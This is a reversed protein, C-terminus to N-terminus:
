ELAEDSDKAARGLQMFLPVLNTADEGYRKELIDLKGKLTKRAKRHDGTDNLLIAYNIALNATNVHNRGFVKSGYRYADNAAELAQDEQNASIHEQYATYASNFKERNDALVTTTWLGLVLLFM